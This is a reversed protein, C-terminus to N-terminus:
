RRLYVMGSQPVQYNDLGVDHSGSAHMGTCGLEGSDQTRHEMRFTLRRSATAMRVM